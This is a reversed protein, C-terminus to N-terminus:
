SQGRLIRGVRTLADARHRGVPLLASRELHERGMLVPAPIAGPRDHRRGTDLAAPKALAPMAPNTWVVDSM